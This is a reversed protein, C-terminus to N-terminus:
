INQIENKISNIHRNFEDDIDNSYYQRKMQSKVFDLDIIKLARLEKNEKLKAMYVETYEGRGIRKIKEYKNSYDENYHHDM